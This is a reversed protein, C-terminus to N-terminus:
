SVTGKFPIVFHGFEGELNFGSGFPHLPSQGSSGPWSAESWGAIYLNDSSDIAIAYASDGSASGYFTHWAYVPDIMLTHRKDYDGVQFGVNGDKLQFRVAVNVRKGDIDQWAVPRSETMWGRGTALTHRLGGDKQLAVQTNYHLKIGAVDAGPEIIYTSETIGSTNGEYRVTIGAWLNPYEVRGLNALGKGPHKDGPSVVESSKVRPVANSADVFQVTLAHDTQVLYVKGPQFGIIHGNAKFQLLPKASTVSTPAATNGNVVSVTLLSLCVTVITFIKKM